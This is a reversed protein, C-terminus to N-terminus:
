PPAIHGFATSRGQWTGGDAGAEPGDGFEQGRRCAVGVEGIGQAMGGSDQNPGIHGPQREPRRAVDGAARGAIGLGMM